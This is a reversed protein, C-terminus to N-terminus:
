FLKLQKPKKEIEDKILEYLEQSIIIDDSLINENEDIIEQVAHIRDKMIRQPLYEKHKDIVIRPM